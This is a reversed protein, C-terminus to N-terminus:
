GREPNRISRSATSRHGRVGQFGTGLRNAPATNPPLAYPPAFFSHTARRRAGAVWGGVLGGRWLGGGIPEQSGPVLGSSPDMPHTRNLPVYGTLEILYQGQESLMWEIFKETNENENGTTIAYFTGSYPYTNNQITEKSPIINDISLLKIENNKVMETSFFLFSFGIANQYNKYVAVQEIIGGMGGVVNEKLPEMLLTDKMIVSELITQSGSNKPRQYPIIKGNQGGLEEWKTIIGSYVDRIQSSTINNISNNRNVFFVFADKGIPTMNFQLGKDAAMAIQENSPEACFIIDVIGNILNYYAQSTQSCRVVESQGYFNYEAQPYVAQVFAAYVPYLATAGDLKPLDDFFELESIDDLSVAKTGDSFPMYEYLNVDHAVVAPENEDVEQAFVLTCAYLLVIFSLLKHAKIDMM